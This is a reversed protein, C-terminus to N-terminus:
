LIYALLVLKLVFDQFFNVLQVQFESTLILHDQTIQRLFPVVYGLEFGFIFTMQIILDLLDGSLFLLINM